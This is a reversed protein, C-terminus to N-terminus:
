KVHNSARDLATLADNIQQTNLIRGQKPHSTIIDFVLKSALTPSETQMTTKIQNQYQIKGRKQDTKIINKRKKRKKQKRAEYLLIYDCNTTKKAL